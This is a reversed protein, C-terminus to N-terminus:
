KSGGFLTASLKGFVALAFARGRRMVIATVLDVAVSEPLVLQAAMPIPKDHAHEAKRWKRVAKETVDLWREAIAVNSASNDDQAWRESLVGDFMDAMELRAAAMRSTSPDGSRAKQVAVTSEESGIGLRASESRDRSAGSHDRSLGPGCPDGARDRESATTSYM